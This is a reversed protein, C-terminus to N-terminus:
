CWDLKHCYEVYSQLTAPPKNIQNKIDGLRNGIVKARDTALEFLYEKMRGQEEKVKTSLRASLRRGQV